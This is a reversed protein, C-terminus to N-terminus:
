GWKAEGGHLARHVGLPLAAILALTNLWLILPFIPAYRAASRLAAAVREHRRYALSLGATLLLAELTGLAYVLALYGLPNSILALLALSLPTYPTLLAIKYALTAHYAGAALLLSSAAFHIVGLAIPLGGLANYAIGVLLWPKRARLAEPVLRLAGEIFGAAIRYAKSVLGRLSGPDVTYSVARTEMVVRWGRLNLLWAAVADDALAGEPLGGIDDFAERRLLLTAGNFNTASGDISEVVRVVLAVVAGGINRFASAVARAVAGPRDPRWLLVLGAVAGIGPDSQARAVLREAANRELITDSDLLLVYNSELVGRRRLLSYAANVNASKGRHASSRLLFVRTGRPMSYEAIRYGEEVTLGELRAGLARLAAVVARATGDTSADDVVAVVAPPLSQELLSRLAYAITEASNRAPIIAAYRAGGLRGTPFEARLRGKRYLIVAKVIIPAWLLYAVARVAVLFSDILPLSEPLAAAKGALKVEVSAPPVINVVVYSRGALYGEMPKSVPWSISIRQLPRGNSEVSVVQAGGTYVIISLPVEWVDGPVSGYVKVRVTDGVVHYSLRTAEYIRMYSYLEGATTVWVHQGELMAAVNDVMALMDKPNDWDYSTAHTYLVVVGSSAEAERLALSLWAKWPLRSSAKVTFHMKALPVRTSPKSPLSPLTDMVVRVGHAALAELEGPGAEGFPEIYTLVHYGTLNGEIDSLSGLYDSADRPPRKHLRTHSAAEWGYRTVLQSLREWGSGCDHSPCGTIVGLTLRLWPYHSVVKEILLDQYNAFYVTPGALNDPLLREAQPDVVYDDVRFVFAADSGMYYRSKEVLVYHGSLVLRGREPLLNAIPQAAALVTLSAVMLIALAVAACRWGGVRM